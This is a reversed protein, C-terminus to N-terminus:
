SMEIVVVEAPAFYCPLNKKTKDVFYFCSTEDQQCSLFGGLRDWYKTKNRFHV